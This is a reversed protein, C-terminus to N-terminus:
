LYVTRAIAIYAKREPKETLTRQMAGMYNKDTIGETREEGQLVREGVESDLIAKLGESDFQISEPVEFYDSDRNNIAIYLLRM